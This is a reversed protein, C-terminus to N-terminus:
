PVAAMGVVPRNLHTAGTSGDFEADGFAFIGGDSAVLRYGHDTATAATGVIPRNLHLAGASGFYAADGFAFTGGDSAVLWYGRGTPTAAMGGIPQNLRIAGTSGFYAALRVGRLGPRQRRAARGQQQVSPDFGPPDISRTFRVAGTM